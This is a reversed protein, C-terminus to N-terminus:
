LLSHKKPKGEVVEEYSGTQIVKGKELKYIRDCYRLTSLRHAIMIIAKKGKLKRIEEVIENETQNDLASTAEDMILVNRGYYFARAIAIRQQQGGSLRTGREGILTNIGNPLEKVLESLNAKEIADIIKDENIESDKTGLAINKKLTDDALFISQPLYAVQNMWKGINEKNLEEGNFFVKGSEPKLFGLLIDVLTSKGAGSSGMLGMTEGLNLELSVQSLAGVREGGYSYDVKEMLLKNFQCINTDAQSRSHELELLEINKLDNYLMNVANRNHGLNGVAAVILNTSPILRMAAAAFVGLTAALDSVEKGFMIGSIVLSVIFTVITFEFLSRPLAKILASTVYSKSIGKSATFVNEHFHKEKGLVRVEKLGQIGENISKILKRMEIEGDRGAKVLKSRFLFDFALFVTGILSVFILLEIASTWLLLCFIATMVISESLLQLISQLTGQAFKSSLTLISHVYESSNRKLYDAYSLNQFADMLESRLKDVKYYAFDLIMKHVLFAVIGKILFICILAIGLALIIDSHNTPIGFKAFWPYLPSSTFGEPNLIISVYPALLGIGVLDIFSSTIFFAVMLPLKNKDKGLLYIIESLYVKYKELKAKFNM